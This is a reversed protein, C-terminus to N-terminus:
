SLDPMRLVRKEKNKAHEFLDAFFSLKSIREPVNKAGTTWYFIDWDNEQLFMDYEELQQDTLNDLNKKAWTALILDSELIGRKRSTYLLRRIKQEKSELPRPIPTPNPLDPSEFVDREEQKPWPRIWEKTAFRRVFRLRQM